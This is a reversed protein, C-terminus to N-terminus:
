PARRPIPLVLSSIVLLPSKAAILCCLLSRCQPSFVPVLAWGRCQDSQRCLFSSLLSAAFFIFNCIELIDQLHIQGPFTQNRISGLLHARIQSLHLLHPHGSHVSRGGSIWVNKPLHPFKCQYQLALSTTALTKLVVPVPPFSPCDHIVLESLCSSLLACSSLILVLSSFRM